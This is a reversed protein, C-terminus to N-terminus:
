PLRDVEIRVLAPQSTSDSVAILNDDARMGLSRIGEELYTTQKSQHPKEAAVQWIQNVDKRDPALVFLADGAPHWRVDQAGIVEQALTPRELNIVIVSQSGDDNTRVTCIRHTTSEVDFAQPNPLGASIQIPQPNEAGMNLVHLTTTGNVSTETWLVFEGGDTLRVSGITERDSVIPSGVHDGAPFRYIAARGTVANRGAVVAVGNDWVIQSVEAIVDNATKGLVSYVSERVLAREVPETPIAYWHDGLDILSAGDNPRVGMFQVRNLPTMPIALWSQQGSHDVWLAGRRGDWESGAAGSLAVLVGSEGSIAIPMPTWEANGIEILSVGPMENRFVALPSEASWNMDIDGISRAIGTATDPQGSTGVVLGVTGGIVVAIGVAIATLVNPSLKELRKRLTTLPNDQKKPIYPAGIPTPTTEGERFERLSTELGSDEEMMPKGDIVRQCLTVWAEATQPRDGPKKEILYAILREVDEPLEPMFDTMRHPPDSVIKRVLQIPDKSEYPLRGTIMQFLLVGLSYLDSTATVDENKCREPSMYQPTGLRSGEVTLQTEATLVKAIGFDTVFAHDDPAVLINGPKIDRHIIHASHASSLAEAIQIGIRLARKWEIRREKKMLQSLPTGHIMQMAIYPIKGVAGVTFIHVINPHNLTAYAEAERQFRAVVASHERLDDKLVKLAVERNLNTDTARYVIGMGGQGVTEIIDYDGFMYSERAVNVDNM